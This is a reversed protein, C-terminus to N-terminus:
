FVVLLSLSPRDNEVSPLLGREWSEKVLYKTLLLYISVSPELCRLLLFASGWPVSRSLRM